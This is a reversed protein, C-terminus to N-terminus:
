DQDIIKYFIAMMEDFKNRHIENPYFVADFLNSEYQKM